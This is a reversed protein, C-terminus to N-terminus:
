WTVTVRQVGKSLPALDDFSRTDLDVVRGYPCGCFDTLRVRTARGNAHVTVIRYRWHVGLAARLRPGAAAQGLRWRYWTASGTLSHGATLSTVGQVAPRSAVHAAPASARATPSPVGFARTSRARLSPSAVGTGADPTGTRAAATKGSAAATFSDESSPSVEATPMEATASAPQQSPRSAPHTAAIIAVLVVAAIITWSIADRM